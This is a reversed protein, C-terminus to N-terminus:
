DSARTQHVVDAVTLESALDDVVARNHEEAFFDLLAEAVEPGVQATDIAAALARTDPDTDAFVSRTTAPASAPDFSFFAASRPTRTTM